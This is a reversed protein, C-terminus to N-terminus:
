GNRSKTAARLIRKVVRDKFRKVERRQEAASLAALGLAAGLPATRREGRLWLQLASREGEDIVTGAIQTLTAAQSPVDESCPFVVGRQFEQAYRRERHRRRRESDIRDAVNRWSARYIFREL